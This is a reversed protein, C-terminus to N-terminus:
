AASLLVYASPKGAPTTAAATGSDGVGDDEFAGDAVTTSTRITAMQNSAQAMAQWLFRVTCAACLTLLTHATAVCM